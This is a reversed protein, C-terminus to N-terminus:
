WKRGGAFPRHRSQQRHYFQVGSGALILLWGLMFVLFVLEEPASYYSAIFACAAVLVGALKLWLSAPNTLDPRSDLWRRLGLFSAIHALLFALAFSTAGAVLAVPIGVSVYGLRAALYGFAAGVLALVAVAAIQSRVKV